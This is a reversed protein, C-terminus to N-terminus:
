ERQLRVQLYASMPPSQSKSVKIRNESKAADERNALFDWSVKWWHSHAEQPESLVQTQACQSELSLLLTAWHSAIELPSSAPEIGPWTVLVSCATSCGSPGLAVVLSLSLVAVFVWLLWFNFFYINKLKLSVFCFLCQIVGGLSVSIRFSCPLHQSNASTHAEWTAKRRWHMFTFLSLSIAWDHGVRLSGMSQLGGPEEMWPSKWALTSSHPAM